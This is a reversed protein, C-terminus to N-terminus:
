GRITICRVDISGIDAGPGFTARCIAKFYFNVTSPTTEGNRNRRTRLVYTGSDVGSDPLDIVLPPSLFEGTNAQIETSLQSIKTRDIGNLRCELLVELQSPDIATIGRGVLPSRLQLGSGSSGATLAVRQWPTQNEDAGDAAVVSCLGAMGSGYPGVELSNVVTGTFSGTKTGGTGLNTPNAFWQPQVPYVDAPDKSIPSAYGSLDLSLASAGVAGIMGVGVHLFHVGDVDFYQPKISGDGNRVNVCDDIFKFQAPNNAAYNALWENYSIATNNNAVNALPPVALIVVKGAYGACAQLLNTYPTALSAIPVNSRANNTGARIFIRGLMPLGAFGPSADLYNNHVRALMMSVTDSAVGSNALLDLKGGNAANMANYTTLGYSDATLSDGM